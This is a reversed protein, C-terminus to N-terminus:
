IRRCEFGVVAGRADEFLTADSEVDAAVFVPEDDFDLVRFLEDEDTEDTRV